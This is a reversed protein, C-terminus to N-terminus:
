NHWSQTQILIRITGQLLWYYGTKIRKWHKPKNQNLKPQPLILITKQFYKKFITSTHTLPRRSESLKKYFLTYDRVYMRVRMRVHM